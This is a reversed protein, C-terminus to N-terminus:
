YQSFLLARPALANEPIRLKQIKNNQDSLVHSEADTTYYRKGRNIIRRVNGRNHKQLTTAPPTAITMIWM